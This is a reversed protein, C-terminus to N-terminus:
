LKSFDVLSASLKVRKCIEIAANFWSTCGNMVFSDASVVIEDHRILVKDPDPDLQVQWNWGSSWALGQIITKLRGSNSVPADLHWTAKAVNWEVFSQGILELAPITESVKRYSGHMSAMDRLCGDRGILLVGGSLAAEITTLLNFGDIMLHCDAIEEDSKMKLLRDNLEEDSCTSRRVATRQREKLSFRDGVLKLASNIAYGRSLLWALHNSAERLSSHNAEAFLEQDEPHPGRHKRQDSM